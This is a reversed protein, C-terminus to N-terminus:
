SGMGEVLDLDATVVLRKLAPDARAQERVCWPEEAYSPWNDPQIRVCEKLGRVGTFYGDADFTLVPQEVELRKTDVGSTARLWDHIQNLSSLPAGVAERILFGCGTWWWREGIFGALAGSYRAQDLAKFLSTGPKLHESLWGEDVRLRLALQSHNLLFCPYPLVRHLLWRLMALGSTWESLHHMPPRCREVEAFAGGAFPVGDIGLLQKVQNALKDPDDDDWKRPLASVADVLVKVQISLEPFEPRQTKAFAWELGFAMAVLHEQPEAELTLDKLAGSYLAVAAPSADHMSRLHARVIGALAVGDDPLCAYPPEVEFTWNKLAHDILVLDAEALLDATLESPHLARLTFGVEPRLNVLGPEDDIVLVISKSDNTM